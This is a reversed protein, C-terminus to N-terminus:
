PTESRLRVRDVKGGPLLPLADVVRLERPAAVRSVRAAVAERAAQLDLPGNLTVFAVVRQGWEADPVGIVAVDKVVDLSALAQEVLLPVVKEGGTVILDDARGLVTLSGDRLEGLDSTVFTGDFAPGGRYSRAVVDGGIVIRDSVDVTVGPLPQGDYVCGGSTESMGYTTVVRIGRARAADLLSPAAAAGGLLVTDLTTLRTDDLMRQLQTPVLSTFRCGEPDPRPDHGATLSRLLVQLGGIHTVPLTIWWAGEGIVSATATMSATLCASTLEVLKPEGTSGSTPVLLCVEDDVAEGQGALVRAREAPDTSVPLVAPGSGDLAARLADYLEPGPVADLVKLARM